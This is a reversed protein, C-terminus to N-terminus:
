EMRASPVDRTRESSKLVLTMMGETIWATRVCEEEKSVVQQGGRIEWVSLLEGRGEFAIGVKLGEIVTGAVVIRGEEVEMMEGVKGRRLIDVGAEEEEREVRGGEKKTRRKMQQM